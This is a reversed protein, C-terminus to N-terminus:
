IEGVREVSHNYNKLIHMKDWLLAIFKVLAFEALTTHTHTDTVWILKENRSEM